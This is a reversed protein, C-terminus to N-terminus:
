RSGFAGTRGDVGEAGRGAVESRAAGADLREVGGQQLAEAGLFALAGFEPEFGIVGGVRGDEGIRRHGEASGVEALNGADLDARADHLEPELIVESSWCLGVRLGGSVGAAKTKPM